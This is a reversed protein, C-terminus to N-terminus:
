HPEPQCTSNRRSSCGDVCMYCHVVMWVRTFLFAARMLRICPPSLSLSISLSLPLSPPISVSVFLSLSLSLRLSLFTCVCLMGLQAAMRLCQVSGRFGLREMMSEGSVDLGLLAELDDRVDHAEEKGHGQVIIVDAGADAIGLVLDQLAFSADDGGSFADVLRVKVQIGAARALASLNTVGKIAQTKDECRCSEQLTVMKNSNAIARVNVWEELTKADPTYISLLTSLGPGAPLSAELSVREQEAQSFIPGVAFIPAACAPRLSAGAVLVSGLDISAPRMRQLKPLILAGRSAFEQTHVAALSVDHIRIGAEGSKRIWAGLQSNYYTGPPGTKPASAGPPGTKPASAGSLSRAWAGVVHRRTASIGHRWRACPVATGYLANLKASM